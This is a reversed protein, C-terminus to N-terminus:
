QINEYECEWLNKESELTYIYTDVSACKKIIQEITGWDGGARVAGIRPMHVTWSIKAALSYTTILCRELSDYKIPIKNNTGKVGHQAVMNVISLDDEIRIAQIVGLPLLLGLKEKEEYWNQYATEPTKYKQSIAVVFGSGWKGSDNVIHLIFAPKKIPELASGVLYHLKNM